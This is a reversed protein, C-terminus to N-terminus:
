FTASQRANNVPQLAPADQELQNKLLLSLRLYGAENLNVGDIRFYDPDPRGDRKSLLANADLITVRDETDAWRKLLATTEEIRASEDPYGPTKLPTFVYFRRTVGYSADLEALKRIARVLDDASKNDRIHFETSGPLLVVAVPHYYGILQSHYHTLDNVTADGLGRLLVPRPSLLADLGRWLKVRRGGIVVIPDNPLKMAQDSLAYAAVEDAWVEPSPNLAAQIERSMLLVLHVIPIILLVACVTRIKNWSYM